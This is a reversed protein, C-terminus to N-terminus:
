KAASGSQEMATGHFFKVDATAVLKDVLVQWAQDKRERILLERARQAVVEFTQKKPAVREDLKFIAVGELTELPPNVKGLEYENIVGQLAEPLMGQHLYGMDGGADAYAGSHLRAAEAFDAGAELRRHIGKAEERTGEWATAPSSPDVTLLIVSLRLKEPETFLEPKAEYFDKVEADSPDAVKRVQEDLQGVLSQEELQVKVGVLLRERNEQWSPNNAYRVDYGALAEDVQKADPTLGRRTAEELLVIRQVLRVKVQERAAALEAEPVQGHYFKQRVLSAFAAEYEQTPVARGNVIAFVQSHPDPKKEVAAEPVEGAVAGNSFIVALSIFGAAFGVRLGSRKVMQIKCM